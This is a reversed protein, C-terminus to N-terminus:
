GIARRIFGRAEDMKDDLGHMHGFEDWHAVLSRLLRFASAGDLARDRGEIVTAAENLVARLEPVADAVCLARLRDTIYRHGMPALIESPTPM